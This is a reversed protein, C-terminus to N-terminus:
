SDLQFHCREQGVIGHHRDTSQLTASIPFILEESYAISVQTDRKVYIGPDFSGDYAIARVFIQTTCAMGDEDRRLIDLEALKEPMSEFAPRDELVNDM